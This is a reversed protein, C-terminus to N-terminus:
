GAAARAAGLPPAVHWEGDAARVAHWADVPASDAPFGGGGAAVGASVVQPAGGEIAARRSAAAGDRGAPRQDDTTTAAEVVTQWGTCRCMHALLAQRVRDDTRQEPALAALRMIIGPTCFGCQTGGADCLRECWSTADVLGDVTTVDRGAVRSAPTVCSVRPQGDVWVTCCGCQGQPSCGDKVSRVGLRDRLVELLTGLGAPGAGEVPEVSVPRGDLVFSVAGSSSSTGSTTM